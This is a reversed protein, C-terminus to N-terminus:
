SGPALFYCAPPFPRRSTKMAIASTTMTCNFGCFPATENFQVYAIPTFPSAVSLFPGGNTAAPNFKTDSDLLNNFSDYANLVFTDLDQDFDGMAVTVLHVAVNSSFTAQQWQTNSSGNYGLVCNNFLQPGPAPNQIFLSILANTNTFTVNPYVLSSHSTGATQDEFTILANAALAMGATTAIIMLTAMLIVMKKM